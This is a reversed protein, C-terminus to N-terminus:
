GLKLLDDRTVPKFLPDIRQDIIQKAKTQEMMKYMTNLIQICSSIVEGNSDEETFLYLLASVM